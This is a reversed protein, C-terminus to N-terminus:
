IKSRGSTFNKKYIVKDNLTDYVEYYNGLGFLMGFLWEKAGTESRFSEKVEKTEIDRIQFRKENTFRGQAM